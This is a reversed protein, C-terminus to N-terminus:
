FNEIGSTYESDIIKLRYGLRDNLDYTNSHDIAMAQYNGEGIPGEGGEEAFRAYGM